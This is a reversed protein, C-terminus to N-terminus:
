ITYYKKIKITNKKLQESDVDFSTEVNAFRLLRNKEQLAQLSFVKVENQEFFSLTDVNDLFLQLSSQKRKLVEEIREIRKENLM